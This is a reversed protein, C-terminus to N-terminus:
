FDLKGDVLMRSVDFEVDQLYKAQLLSTKFQVTIKKTESTILPKQNEDMIPFYFVAADADTKPAVLQALERKEKKDNFLIIKDKLNSLQGDKFSEGVVSKVNPETVPQLLIFVYYNKCNDCSLFNKTKEDFEEKQKKDLKDYNAQIQRLRLVAQRVKLSSFLRLIVPPSAPLQIGEAFGSRNISGYSLSVDINTYNKAWPSDNLIKYAEEKKWKQWDKEWARQAPILQAFVLLVLFILSIKKFSKM